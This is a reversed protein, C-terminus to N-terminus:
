QWSRIGQLVPHAEDQYFQLLYSALKANFPAFFRSL